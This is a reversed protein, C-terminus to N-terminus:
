ARGRGSGGVCDIRHPRSSPHECGTRLQTRTKAWHCPHLGTGNKQRRSPRRCSRAVTRRVRGQQRGNSKFPTVASWIGMAEEVVAIKQLVSTDLSNWADKLNSYSYSLVANDWAAHTAYLLRRDELQESVLRRGTHRKNRRARAHSISPARTRRRSSWASFM